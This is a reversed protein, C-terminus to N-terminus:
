RLSREHKSRYQDLGPLPLEIRVADSNSFRCHIECALCENCLRKAEEKSVSLTPKAKEIKLVNRGYFRDAKVCAFGCDPAICKGYDITIKGTRFEFKLVNAQKKM